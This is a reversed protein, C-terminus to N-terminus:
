SDPVNSVYFGTLGLTVGQHGSIDLIKIELPVAMEEDASAATRLNLSIPLLTAPLLRIESELM